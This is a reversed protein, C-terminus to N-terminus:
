YTKQNLVTSFLLWFQAQSQMTTNVFAHIQCIATNSTIEMRDNHKRGQQLLALKKRTLSCHSNMCNYVVLLELWM